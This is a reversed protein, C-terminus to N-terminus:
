GRERLLYLIVGPDLAGCRTGMPLGDLSTFGMTRDVTTLQFPTRSAQLDLSAASRTRTPGAAGCRCRARCRTDRDASNVRRPRNIGRRVLAPRRSNTEGGRLALDHHEVAPLDDPADAMALRRAASQRDAPAAGARGAALGEDRQGGARTAPLVRRAALSALLRAIRHRPLQGLAGPRCAPRLQCGRETTGASENRGAPPM